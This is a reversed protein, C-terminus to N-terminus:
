LFKSMPTSSIYYRSFTSRTQFFSDDDKEFLQFEIYVHFKKHYFTFPTIKVIKEFDDNSLFIFHHNRIFISHNYKINEIKFKFLNIDFKITKLEFNMKKENTWNWSSLLFISFVGNFSVNSSHGLRM